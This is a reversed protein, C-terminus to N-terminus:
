SRRAKAFIRGKQNKFERPDITFSEDPKNSQKHVSKRQEMHKNRPPLSPASIMEPDTGASLPELVRRWVEAILVVVLVAIMPPWVYVHWDEHWENTVIATTFWRMPNMVGGTHGALAITIGTVALGMELSATMVSAARDIIGLAFVSYFITCAVWEAFFARGLHITDGNIGAPNVHPLGIDTDTDHEHVTYYVCAAAVIWGAFQGIFAFVLLITRTVIVTFPSSWLYHVVHMIYLTLTLAPNMHGGSIHGFISVAIMVGLGVGLGLASADYVIGTTAGALAATYLIVLGGFWSAFFEGMLMVLVQSRIFDFINVETEKAMTNVGQDVLHPSTGFQDIFATPDGRLYKVNSHM